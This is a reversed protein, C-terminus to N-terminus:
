GSRAEALLEACQSQVAPCGFEAAIKEAAWPLECGRSRNEGGGRGVLRRGWELKTRAVFFPAESREHMRLAEEFHVDAEDLGLM